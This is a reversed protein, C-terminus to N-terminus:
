EARSRRERRFERCRILLLMREAREDGVRVQVRGDSDLVRVAHFQYTLVASGQFMCDSWAYASHLLRFMTKM